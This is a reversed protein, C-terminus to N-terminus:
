VIVRLDGKKFVAYYYIESMYATSRHNNTQKQDFVNLIM